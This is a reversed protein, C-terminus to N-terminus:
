LLSRICSFINSIITKIFIAVYSKRDFRGTNYHYM